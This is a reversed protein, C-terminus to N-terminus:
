ASTSASTTTLTNEKKATRVAITNTLVALLNLHSGIGCNGALALRSDGLFYPILHLPNINM